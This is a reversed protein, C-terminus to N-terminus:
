VRGLNLRHQEKSQEYRLFRLDDRAQKLRDECGKVHREKRAICDQIALERTPMALAKAAKGLIFQDYGWASVWVGKPTTRVVKFSTWIVETSTYLHDGWEDAVSYHRIEARWWVDHTILDSAKEAM